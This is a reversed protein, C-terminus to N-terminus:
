LGGGNNELQNKFKKRSTNIWSTVMGVMRRLNLINAEAEGNLYTLQLSAINNGSFILNCIIKGNMRTGEIEILECKNLLYYAAEYSDRTSITKM